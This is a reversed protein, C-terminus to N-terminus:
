EGRERGANAVIVAFPPIALAIGAMVVAATRSWHVVVLGSFLFLALCVGMLTFYWRRRRRM